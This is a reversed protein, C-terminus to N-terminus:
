EYAERSGTLLGNVPREKDSNYPIGRGEDAECWVEARMQVVMVLTQLSYNNSQRLVVEKSAHLDLFRFVFLNTFTISIIFILNVM